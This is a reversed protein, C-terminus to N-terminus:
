APSAIRLHRRGDGRRASDDQGTIKGACRSEIVDERPALGYRAREDLFDISLGSRDRFAALVQERAVDQGTHKVALQGFFQASKGPQAAERLYRNSLDLVTPLVDLHFRCRHRGELQRRVEFLVQRTQEEDMPRIPLVHFQDALGRDREQLVRFAEPTMEALMRFERREVHPKLVDAVTLDSDRSRGASYLGLVDDFYLM